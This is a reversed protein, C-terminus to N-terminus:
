VIWKRKYRVCARLKDQNETEGYERQTDKDREVMRKIKGITV